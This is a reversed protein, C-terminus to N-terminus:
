LNMVIEKQKKRYNRQYEKMYAKRDKDTDVVINKSEEQSVTSAEVVVAPKEEKVPALSSAPPALAENAYVDDDSDVLTVVEVKKKEVKKSQSVLKANEEELQKVKKELSNIREKYIKAEEYFKDVIPKLM